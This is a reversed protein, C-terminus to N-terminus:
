LEEGHMEGEERKRGELNSTKKRKRIHCKDNAIEKKM